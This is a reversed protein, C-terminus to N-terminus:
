KNRCPGRDNTLVFFHKSGNTVHYAKSKEQLKKVCLKNFPHAGICSSFMVVLSANARLMDTTHYSSNYIMWPIYAEAAFKSTWSEQDQQCLGKGADRWHTRWDTYKPHHGHQQPEAHFYACTEDLHVLFTGTHGFFTKLENWVSQFVLPELVRIHPPMLLRWPEPATSITRKGRARRQTAPHWSERPSAAGKRARSSYVAHFHTRSFGFLIAVTLVFSCMGTLWLLTSSSAGAQGRRTALIEKGSDKAAHKVAIM